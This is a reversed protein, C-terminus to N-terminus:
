RRRRRRRRVFAEVSFLTCSHTPTAINWYFKIQLFQHGALQRSGATFCMKEKHMWNLKFSSPLFSSSSFYLLCFFQSSFPLALHLPLSLICSSYHNSGLSSILIIDMCFFLDTYFFLLLWCFFIKLLFFSSLFVFHFLYSFCCLLLFDIEVITLPCIKWWSFIGLTM